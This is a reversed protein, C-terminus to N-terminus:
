DIGEGAGHAAFKHSHICIIQRRGQGIEHREIWLFGDGFSQKQHEKQLATAASEGHAEVQFLDNAGFFGGGNTGLHKIAVFAAVPGRSVRVTDGQLNTIMDKGEFTM